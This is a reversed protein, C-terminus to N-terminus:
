RAVDEELQRQLYLELQSAEDSNSPESAPLPKFSSSAGPM